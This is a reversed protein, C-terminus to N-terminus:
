PTKALREAIVDPTTVLLVSFNRHFGIPVFGHEKALLTTLHSGRSHSDFSLGTIPYGVHAEFDAAKVWEGRVDVLGNPKCGNVREEIDLLYRTGKPIIDTAAYDGRTLAFVLGAGSKDVIDRLKAVFLHRYFDRGRYPELVTAYAIMEAVKKPPEAPSGVMDAFSRLRLADLRGDEFRAEYYLQPALQEWDFVKYSSTGALVGDWLVAKIFHNGKELTGWFAASGEEVRDAGYFEKALVTIVQQQLDSSLGNFDVIQELM